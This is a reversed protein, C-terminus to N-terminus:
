RAGTAALLGGGVILAGGVLHPLGLSEGLLFRGLLAGYLPLTNYFVMAGSAGLRRVGANWSLFGVVGPAIGIYLVPLILRPTFVFSGTHIEWAAALALAPLGLLVSFASASLASRHEMARRGLVSYLSWLSVAGLVILDGVGSDMARWFRLRGGSILAMVGTLSLATGGIQWRSVREGILPAALLATILPGM